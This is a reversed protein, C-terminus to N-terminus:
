GEVWLRGERLPVRHKRNKWKINRDRTKEFHYSRFGASIALEGLWRDVPVYIGYPASDGVVFCVQSNPATARRLAVWVRALDAFYAAIMTHYPKKGGHLEREAELRACVEVLEPRIPELLPEKLIEPTARSIAAVHQTCSRVLHKRVSEQLDGWGNVEGTFTMELRTADAYDYNNVYPPSTVVLNAWGDPVSNCERADEQFLLAKPGQPLAQRLAMDTAFMMTKAHFATFPDLVKAKSKNPLVYQWQATGVPSCERLIAMLVLWSLESAPSGDRLALWATRLSVLKLLIDPPFCKALLTAPEKVRAPTREARQLVEAAFCKFAEVDSRWLLKASAVRAVFPHAEVGIARVGCLEAELLTTGSGAFPDLVNARGHDREAEILQRVWAASFGASYRFWRHVPLSVNEAFTSTTGSNRFTPQDEVESYLNLQRYGPASRAM